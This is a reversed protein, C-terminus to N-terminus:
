DVLRHTDSRHVWRMTSLVIAACVVLLAAAIALRGYPANWLAVLAAQREVDDGVYWLVLLVPIGIVGAGAVQGLRSGFRWKTAVSLTVAMLLACQWILWTAPSHWLEPSMVSSSLFWCMTCAAAAAIFKSGVLVRDNVPM